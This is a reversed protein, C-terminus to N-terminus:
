FIPAGGVGRVKNPRVFTKKKLLQGLTSVESPDPFINSPSKATMDASIKESIDINPQASPRTHVSGSALVGIPALPFKIM